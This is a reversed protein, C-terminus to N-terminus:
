VRTGVDPTRQGAYPEESHHRGSSATASAGRTRVNTQWQACLGLTVALVLSVHMVEVAAGVCAFVLFTVGAAIVFRTPDRPARVALVLGIFLSAPLFGQLVGGKVACELLTDFGPLGVNPHLFKLHTIVVIIATLAMLADNTTDAVPKIVFVRLAAVLVM